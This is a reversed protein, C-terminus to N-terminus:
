IYKLFLIKYLLAFDYEDFISINYTQCLDNKLLVLIYKLPM